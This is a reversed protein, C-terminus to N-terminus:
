PHHSCQLSWTGGHLGKEFGLTDIFAASAAVPAWLEKYLQGSNHLVELQDKFIKRKLFAM